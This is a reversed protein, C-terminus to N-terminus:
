LVGTSKKKNFEIVVDLVREKIGIVSGNTGFTTKVEQRIPKVTPGITSKM